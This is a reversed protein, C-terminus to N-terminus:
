SPIILSYQQQLPYITVYSPTAQQTQSIIIQSYQQHYFITVYSSINASNLLSYDPQLTSTIYAYNRIIPYIASDMLSNASLIAPTHLHISMHHYLNSLGPLITTTHIVHHSLHSIKNYPRLIYVTVSKTTASLQQIVSHCPPQRDGHGLTKGLTAESGAM